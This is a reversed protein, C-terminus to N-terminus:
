ASKMHDALLKEVAAAPIAYWTGMDAAELRGDHIMERVTKVDKCGLMEAVESPRYAARPPQRTAKKLAQVEQTLKEIAEILEASM